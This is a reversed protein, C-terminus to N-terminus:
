EIVEDARMLISQPVKVGIERAIKMNVSLVYKTAQRVPLDAPKAGKLIRDVFDAAEHVMSVPDVGYTIVCGQTGGVMPLHLRRVGEEIPDRLAVTQGAYHIVLGDPRRKEFQMFAHQLDTTDKVYVNTLIVGKVAAARKAQQVPVADWTPDSLMAIRSAKPVLELLLEINKAVLLDGQLSMGTVNTGPRALSKVLRAAVPDVSVLLVIPITTTKAVMVKATSEVALLVDPRLALLEDVLAPFRRTDGGSMRLELVFDVGQVYGHERMGLLFPQMNQLAEAETLALVAIVGIVAPKRRGQAHALPAGVLGAVGALFQRRKFRVRGQAVSTM